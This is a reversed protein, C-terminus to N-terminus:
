LSEFSPQFQPAPLCDQVFSEGRLAPLESAAYVIVPATNPTPQYLSQHPGLGGRGWIPATLVNTTTAVTAIPAFLFLGALDGRGVSEVQSKLYSARQQSATTVLVRFGTEIDAVRFRKHFEGTSYLDKYARIKEPWNNRNTRDAEIFFHCTQGDRNRLIVSGDPRFQQVISRGIVSVKLAEGVRWQSEDWWDVIEVGALPAHLEFSVRIDTLDVTHEATTLAPPKMQYTSYADFSTKTELTRLWAGRPLLGWIRSRRRGDAQPWIGRAFSRIYNKAELLQTLRQLRREQWGTLRMLQSTDILRFRDVAEVIRSHHEELWDPYAYSYTFRPRNPLTEQRPQHSSSHQLM